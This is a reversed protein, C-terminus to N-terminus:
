IHATWGQKDAAQATHPLSLTALADCLAHSQLRIWSDFQIKDRTYWDSHATAEVCVCLCWIKITQQLLLGIRFHYQQSM